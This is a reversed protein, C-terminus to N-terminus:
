LKLILPGPRLVKPADGTADVVTSPLVGPLLGGDVVLDVATIEDGFQLMVQNVSYCTAENSINASTATYPKGFAKALDLCFNYDPMRIGLTPLGGTLIDSVFPKKKLVLTLPGPLYKKALEEALPTWDVYNKAMATDSVIVHFAKAPMRKKLNFVKTVAPENTADVGLGYATETPYVIMGGRKLIEAAKAVAAPDTITLNLM